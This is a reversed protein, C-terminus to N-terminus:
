CATSRCPSPPASAPSISVLQHGVNAAGGFQHGFDAGGAALLIDARRLDVGRDLLEVLHGLLVGTRRFFNGGRGLFQGGLGLFQLGADGEEAGVAV